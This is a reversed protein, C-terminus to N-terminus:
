PYLFHKEGNKALEDKLKLMLTTKGTQRAGIILSIHKKSLHKFLKNYLLRKQM